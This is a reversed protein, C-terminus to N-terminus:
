SLAFSLFHLRHCHSVLDPFCTWCLEDRLCSALTKSHNWNQHSEKTPPQEYHTPKTPSIWMPFLQSASAGLAQQGGSIMLSGATRKWLTWCNMENQPKSIVCGAVTKAVSRHHHICHLSLWFKSPSTQRFIDTNLERSRLWTNADVLRIFIPRLPSEVWKVEHQLDGINPDQSRSRKTRLILAPYFFINPWGHSWLQRHMWVLHCRAKTTTSISGIQYCVPSQWHQSRESSRIETRVM